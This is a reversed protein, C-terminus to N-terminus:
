RTGAWATTLPGPSALSGAPLVRRLIGGGGSLALAGPALTVRARTAPKQRLLTTPTPSLTVPDPLNTPVALSAANRERDLLCPHETGTAFWLLDAPFGTRSGGAARWPM